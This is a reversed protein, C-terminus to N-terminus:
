RTVKKKRHQRRSLMAKELKRIIEALECPCFAWGAHDPLAAHFHSLPSGIERFLWGKRIYGNDPM